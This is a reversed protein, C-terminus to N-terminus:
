QQYRVEILIDKLQTRSGRAFVQFLNYGTRLWSAAVPYQAEGQEREMPELPYGNLSLGPPDGAEITETQLRVLVRPVTEAESKGLAHDALYFPIQYLKGAEIEVPSSPSFLKETGHKWFSPIYRKFSGRGVPDLSYLKDLGELVSPEGLESFVQQYGEEPFINFLYIGDAGKRWASLAQARLSEMSGSHAALTSRRLCPYVPVGFRHGLEITEEWPVLSIEGVIVLDILDERLWTILDLGMDQSLEPSELVRAAILLPRERRRGQADAAQRLRRLLETMGELEATTVPQGWAHTKFFPPHRWFDLELGDIDYNRILEELIHFAHDRVAPQGYDVGTWYGYPPPKEQTGFLFQPNRKKYDSGLLAYGSGDHIDNMRVSAFIEIGESRCYDVTIALSDTGQLALERTLNRFGERPLDQLHQEAVETRHSYAGFSQTTCYFITDVHTGVVPLTRRALLNHATAPKGRPFYLNDDGDNNFIIRRPRQRAERRLRQFDDSEPDPRVEDATTQDSPPPASCAPLLFGVLLVIVSLNNM